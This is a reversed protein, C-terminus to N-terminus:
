NFTDATVNTPREVRIDVLAETIPAKRLHCVARLPHRQEPKAALRYGVGRITQLHRPSTPDNEIYRRLATEMLTLPM